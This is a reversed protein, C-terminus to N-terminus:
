WSGGGGGGGGGGSSGGSFGSSGSGSPTSAITGATTVAFGDMSSSFSAATLSNSGGYWSVEPLEGDLGAFAKAWKETAGFVIAYPLYESFLHRREAFRARERESDEIFRRFGTVRRLVATGRATRRPMWRSGVALVLGGVVVPVPVLGATTSRAALYVLGAGAAAVVGGIVAWRLRVHDPRARFWKRAVVDDYLADQVRGLRSAFTNKLDSLKVEGESASEFLGDLLRKEYDLLGDREKELRVLTWDPKGLWWKKPIEDIRLHGRVALDVITAVVDLPNAHEDVLTGVQGPRVGDPPLFEVPTVPRETLPVPAEADGEEGFVADVPLGAFRRDRGANWVLAAFGALVVVLLAGASGVTAPTVSFARALTWREDLRPAPRPVVGTPIAVVVTFAEFAGLDRHAFRATSGESTSSACPLGSGAPGTFCAVQQIGAPAAVTVGAEDIPVEWQPGIANWYLEDHDPFGNLAAEMRYAITYTHAGTITRDPDGIRIRTTGGGGEELVYGAPAGPSADVSVVELPYVRDYRDDYRLRVPVDRLIGHRENSAFDYHIVERIALVGSEEIRLEVSYSRIREGAQAAGPGAGVVLVVVAVVLGALARAVLRRRPPM